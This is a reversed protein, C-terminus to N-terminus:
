NKELKIVGGHQEHGHGNHKGGGRFREKRAGCQGGRLRKSSRSKSRKSHRRRAGGSLRKSRRSKSRKSVHRGSKRAGGSLNCSGGIM